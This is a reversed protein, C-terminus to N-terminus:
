DVVLEDIQGQGNMRFQVSKGIALQQAQSHKLARGVVFIYNHVGATDRVYGFGAGPNLRTVTGPQLKTATM